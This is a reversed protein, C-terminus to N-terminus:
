GGGFGAEPDALWAEVPSGDFGLAAFGPLVIDRMAGLTCLRTTEMSPIGHEPAGEPLTVRGIDCWGRVVPQALTLLNADIATRVSQPQRALFTWGVRAHLVEDALLDGVAIRASPSRAGALSAELFSSAIAETVCCLTVVRLAAHVADTAVRAPEAPVGTPWPVEARLYRCALARCVEAHRVEDHVARSVVALVDPDAGTALLEQCLGTFTMAVRLEEHARRQWTRAVQVRLEDDMADIIPDQEPLPLVRRRRRMMSPEYSLADDVAIV